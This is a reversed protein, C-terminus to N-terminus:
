NKKCIIGSFYGVTWAGPGPSIEKSNYYKLFEARSADLKRSTLILTAMTHVGCITSAPHDFQNYHMKDIVLSPDLVNTANLSLFQKIVLQDIEKLTKLQEENFVNYHSMDSSAVIVIDKDSSKIVNSIEEAIKDLENYNHSQLKIPLIKVNNAGACFKIFPMQLEVSNESSMFFARENPKINKSILRLKQSTEEDVELNGLPTEWEGKELFVNGFPERHHFGIVIVTDPIKEKFLNLYTHAACPGSYDLGAHGSVGGIIEREEKNLSKPVEGPGFEKNTFCDTLAKKLSEFTGPYWSGALRAKKILDM